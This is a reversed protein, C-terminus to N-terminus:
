IDFLGSKTMNTTCQSTYLVMYVAGIVLATIQGMVSPDRLIRIGLAILKHEFLGYCGGAQELM